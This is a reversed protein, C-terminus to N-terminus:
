MQRDCPTCSTCGVIRKSDDETMVKCCMSTIQSTDNIPKAVAKGCQSESTTFMGFASRRVKAKIPPKDKGDRGVVM